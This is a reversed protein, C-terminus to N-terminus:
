GYMQYRKIYQVMNLLIYINNVRYYVKSGLVKQGSSHSATGSAPNEKMASNTHLKWYVEGELACSPSLCPSYIFKGGRGLGAETSPSATCVEMVSPVHWYTSVMKSFRLHSCKNLVAVVSHPSAHSDRICRTEVVENSHLRVQFVEWGKLILYLQSENCASEGDADKNWFLLCWPGVACTWETARANESFRGGGWGPVIHRFDGDSGYNIFCTLCRVFIHRWWM